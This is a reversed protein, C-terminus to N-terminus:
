RVVPGTTIPGNFILGGFISSGVSPGQTTTKWRSYTEWRPIIFQYPSNAIIRQELVSLARGNYVMVWELECGDGPPYSPTPTSGGIVMDNNTYTFTSGADSTSSAISSFDWYLNHSTASTSVWAMTHFGTRDTWHNNGGQLIVAASGGWRGVATAKDQSAVYGLYTYYTQNPNGVSFYYQQADTANKFSGIVTYPYQTLLKHNQQTYICGTGGFRIGRPTMTANAGSTKSFRQPTVLNSIISFSPENFLYVGSLGRAMPHSWDITVENYPPKIKNDCWPYYYNTSM